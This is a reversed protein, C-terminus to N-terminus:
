PLRTSVMPVGERLALRAREKRKDRDGVLMCLGLCCMVVAAVSLIIVTVM